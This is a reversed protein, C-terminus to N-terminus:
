PEEFSVRGNYIPMGEFYVKEHDANLLRETAGMYVPFLGVEGICPQDDPQCIPLFLSFTNLKQLQM